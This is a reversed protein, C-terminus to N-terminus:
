PTSGAAQGVAGAQAPAPATEAAERHHRDITARDLRLFGAANNYLIDRKQAPTLFGASDVGAIAQGIAEPWVMQDSGFMIRKGFGADVLAQLYAHFEARPLAWALVGIDVYLQPYVYLLAKTEALFPYGAHMLWARMRPHRVLVDEVLQPNGLSTRFTPCCGYPTGADGLGTHIAVPVDLAEALAFYPAVEPDTARQGRYQLGLEGIVGIQGTRVQERLTGTDPLANRPGAYAGGILRQPAANRWRQVDELPGSAVALVVRHAKMAALTARIADADSLAAPVEGTVENPPPPNGYEDFGFAHLHMDIVPGRDQAWASPALLCALVLAPLRM